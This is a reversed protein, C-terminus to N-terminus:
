RIVIRYLGYILLFTLLVGAIGAIIAGTIENGFPLVYDPAFAPFANFGREMFGLNQATKELGDPSSRALFVATGSLFFSASILFYIRNKNFRM